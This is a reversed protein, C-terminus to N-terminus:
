SNTAFDHQAEIRKLERSITRGNMQNINTLNITMYRAIAQGLLDMQQSDTLPLIGEPGREGGVHQTIPIGRGPQNIIGGSAHYQLKPYYIAGKANKSTRNKGPSLSGSKVETEVEVVVGKKAKGTIWDWVNSFANKIGSFLDGM